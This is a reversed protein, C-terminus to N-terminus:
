IKFFDINFVGIQEPPSERIVKKSNEIMDVLASKIKDFDAASFSIVSSYHLNTAFSDQDLAHIAKIRWNTHFKSILPSENGLHIRESGVKFRHTDIQEALGISVLFELVQSTKKISLGFYQSIAEKTQYEPLTLLIHIAGFIWSSYFEIQDERSLSKVRFREKLNNRKNQLESIQDRLRRRLAPTGARAFQVLTLLYLSEESSHGLFENLGEAQELSLQSKTGNLVQSIHSVPCGVRISIALKLGRGGRPQAEIYANLFSKYDIYDFLTKNTM